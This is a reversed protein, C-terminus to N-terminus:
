QRSGAVQARRRNGAAAIAGQLKRVNEVEARLQDMENSQRALEATGEKLAQATDKSVAGQKAALDVTKGALDAQADRIDSADASGNDFQRRAMLLARQRQRSVEKQSAGSADFAGAAEEAQRQAYAERVQQRTQSGILQEAGKVDGGLVLRKREEINRRERDIADKAIKDKADAEEKAIREREKAASEALKVSEQTAKNADEASQKALRDADERAAKEKERDKDIVDRLRQQAQLIKEVSKARQEDTLRGEKAAEMYSDTLDDIVDRLEDQTEIQELANKYSEADNASKIKVLDAENKKENEVRKAEEEAQKKDEEYATRKQEELRQNEKLVEGTGEAVLGLKELMWTFDSATVDSFATWATMMGGIAKESLGAGGAIGDFLHQTTPDNGIKEMTAWIKDLQTVIKAAGENGNVAMARMAADFKIAAQYGKKLLDVVALYGTALATVTGAIESNSEAVEKATEKASQGLQGIDGISKATSVNVQVEADRIGDVLEDFDVGSATDSAQLGADRLSTTLERGGQAANRLETAVTEASREVRTLSSDGADGIGNLEQQLNETRKKLEGLQDFLEKAVQELKDNSKEAEAGMKKVSDTVDKAGDKVGSADLKATITIAM